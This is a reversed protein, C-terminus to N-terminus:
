SRPRTGSYPSLPQRRHPRRLAGSGAHLLRRLTAGGHSVPLGGRHAPATKICVPRHFRGNVGVPRQRQTVELHHELVHSLLSSRPVDSISRGTLDRGIEKALEHGFYRFRSAGGEEGDVLLFCSGNLKELTGLDFDQLRPLRDWGRAADWSKYLRVSSRQERKGLKRRLPIAM